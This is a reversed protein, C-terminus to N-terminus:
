LEIVLGDRAVITGQRAAAAEAAVRDMFSDSHDPDHHFLCLKGAKAENALRVAQQWSSHGWGAHQPLEDDTYTADIILVSAGQALAVIRPDIKAGLELDTLYAVAHTGYEVRYGTAGGPHVLPATRIAVDRYPNLTEGADFDTFALKAKAMELGVPFLPFSMLKDLAAKIGGHAKMHGGFVRLRCGGEFLPAFFPLGIVHDIHCHTFFLSVDLPAKEKLLADGLAHM